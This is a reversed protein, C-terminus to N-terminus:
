AGVRVRWEDLADHEALIAELLHRISPGFYRGRRWALGIERDFSMGEVEVLRLAGAELSERVSMQPLFSIGVGAEVLKRMAEPSRMEMVVRPSVGAEAFADDVLKRSVSDTAFLILHEDAVESPSVFGRGAFPHGAGVVLPMADSLLSVSEIRPHEFPLTILAFESRNELLEDVLYRSPAVQISLEMNPYIGLYDKLLGPLLYIAGADISGFQFSGEDRHGLQRGLREGAEEVLDEIQLAYAMLTRGELTLEVHRSDRNFLRVGVDGELEAVGSSVTPQTVHLERAARTFGGARAVALFYRIHHFNM